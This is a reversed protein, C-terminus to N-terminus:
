PIFIKQTSQNDFRVLYFGTELEFTKENTSVKQQEAVLSGNISYVAVEYPVESSRILLQGKKSILMQSASLLNSNEFVISQPAFTESKGDFDTQKLRYYYQGQAEPADTISYNNIQNSTGAGDIRAMETFNVGDTSREISFYQNNLESLTEWEILVNDGSIKVSFEALEIPLTGDGHITSGDPISFNFYGYTSGFGIFQGATISSEDSGEIIGLLINRFTNDVVIAGNNTAYSWNMWDGLVHIFGNEGVTFGAWFDTFLDNTVLSGNVMLQANDTIDLDDLQLSAGEDIIIEGNNIMELNDNLTINHHIFLQDANTPVTGLDWTDANDAAGDAITHFVAAFSFTVSSIIVFFLTFLKKM